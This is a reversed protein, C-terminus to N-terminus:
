RSIDQLSIQIHKAIGDVFAGDLEEYGVIGLCM